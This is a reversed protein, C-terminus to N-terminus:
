HQGALHLRPVAGETKVAFMKMAHQRRASYRRWCVPTAAKVKKLLAAFDEFPVDSGCGALLVLSTISTVAFIGNRFLSLTRLNNTKQTM